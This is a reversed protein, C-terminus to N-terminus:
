KNRKFTGKKMGQMSEIQDWTKGFVGDIGDTYHIVDNKVHSTDGNLEAQAQTFSIENRKLRDVTGDFGKKKLATVLTEIEKEIDM